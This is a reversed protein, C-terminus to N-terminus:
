IILYNFESLITAINGEIATKDGVEKLEKSLTQYNDKIIFITNINNSIELNVEQIKKVYLDRLDRFDM